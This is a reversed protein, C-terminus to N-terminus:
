REGFAEDIVDDVGCGSTGDDIGVEIYKSSLLNLARPSLV